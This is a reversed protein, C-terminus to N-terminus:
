SGTGSGSSSPTSTTANAFKVREVFAGARASITLSVPDGALLTEVPDAACHAMHRCDRGRSWPGLDVAADEGHRRSEPVFDDMGITIKEQVIDARAVVDWDQRLKGRRRILDASGRKPREARSIPQHVIAQREGFLFRDLAMLALGRVHRGGVIREGVLLFAL